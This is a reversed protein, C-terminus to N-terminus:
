AHSTFDRLRRGVRRSSETFFELAPAIVKVVQLPEGRKTFRVRSVRSIGNTRLRDLLLSLGTDIDPLPHEPIDEFRATRLPNSFFAALRIAHTRSREASWGHFKSYRDSLDDRAGHIFSLRSQAAETIARMVALERSLHCGYGGNVYIPSNRDPEVIVAMFYPLQFANAQYRVSLQLGADLIRMAFDRAQPPLSEPDVLASTDRVYQYSRIDREIVECLGHLTAEELSNGSALGNSSSGFYSPGNQYPLFVLEAPVLWISSTVLDEAEVCLLPDDLSIVARLRPCLDLIADPRERGDLVEGASAERTPVLLHDYLEPISGRFVADPDTASM